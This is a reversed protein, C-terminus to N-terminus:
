PKDKLADIQQVDVFARPHVGHKLLLALPRRTGCGTESNADELQAWDAVADLAAYAANLQATLAVGPQVNTLLACAFRLTAPRVFALYDPRTRPAFHRDTFDASQADTLVPVAEETSAIPAPPTAYASYKDADYDLIWLEKDLDGILWRVRNAEYRVRVTYESRDITM